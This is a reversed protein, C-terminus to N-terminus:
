YNAAALSTERRWSPPLTRYRAIQAKLRNLAHEAEVAQSSPTSVVLRELAFRYAAARGWLSGRVVAVIRANEEIRRAANLREGDGLASVYALSKRRKRDMDLVRGATEFFQPLRTTDNRVDDILQAYRASPSRFAASLLYNAYADRPLPVPVPFLGYEGAVSNWRQRDYPPEILPYALDRLQREDDTLDFASPGGPLGATAASGVWDHIDDRVLSPRVEGFDGNTNCGALLTLAAFAFALRM